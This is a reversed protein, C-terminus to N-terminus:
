NETHSNCHVKDVIPQVKAPSYRGDITRPPIANKILCIIHTITNQEKM